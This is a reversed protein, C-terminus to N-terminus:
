NINLVMDAEGLKEKAPGSGDYVIASLDAGSEVGSDTKARISYLKGNSTYGELAFVTYGHSDQRIELVKKSGTRGNTMFICGHSNKDRSMDLNYHQNALARFSQDAEASVTIEGIDVTLNV